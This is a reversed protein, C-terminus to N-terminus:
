RIEEITDKAIRVAEGRRSSGQNGKMVSVSLSLLGALGIITVAMAVLIEIMNFGGEKRAFQPRNLKRRTSKLRIM